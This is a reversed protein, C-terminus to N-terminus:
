YGARSHVEPLEGGPVMLSWVLRAVTESAIVTERNHAAALGERLERRVTESGTVDFIIDLNGSNKLLDAASVIPIGGSRAAACGPADPNSEAVAVLDVARGHQKLLADLFVSGVRGLGVVAVRVKSM